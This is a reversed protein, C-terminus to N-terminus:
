RWLDIASLQSQMREPMGGRAIVRRQCVEVPTDVIIVKAGREEWYSRLTESGAAVIIWAATDSTDGRCFAAIRENRMRVLAHREPDSLSDLNRKMEQAMARLSILAEGQRKHEKVYTHKGSAPRGCVLFLPKEAVPMWEPYMSSGTVKAEVSTKMQHCMPCLTQLNVLEDKGGMHLPHIHDVEMHADTRGCKLCTYRDRVLVQQRIRRWPRASRSIKKIFTRPAEHKKAFSAGHTKISDVM